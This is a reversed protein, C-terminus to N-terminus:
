YGTDALITEYSALRVESIAREEVLDVIEAELQGTQESLDKIEALLAVREEVTSDSAILAVEATRVRDDVRELEARKSNIQYTASKVATKKRRLVILVAVLFLVTVRM